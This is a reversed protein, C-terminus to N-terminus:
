RDEEAQALGGERVGYDGDEDVDVALSCEFGGNELEKADGKNEVDL